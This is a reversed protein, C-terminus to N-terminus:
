SANEVTKKKRPVPNRRRHRAFMGALTHPKHTRYLQHTKKHRVIPEGLHNRYCLNVEFTPIFEEDKSRPDIKTFHPKLPKRNSM